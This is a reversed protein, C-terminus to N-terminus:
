LYIVRRLFIIKIVNQYLEHWNLCSNEIRLKTLLLHKLKIENLDIVASNLSMVKLNTPLQHSGHSLMNINYKSNLLNLYKIGRISWYYKSM